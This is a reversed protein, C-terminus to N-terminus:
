TRTHGNGWMVFDSSINNKKSGIERDRPFKMVMIYELDSSESAM